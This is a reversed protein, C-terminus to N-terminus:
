GNDLVDRFWFEAEGWSGESEMEVWSTCKRGKARERCDFVVHDGDEM